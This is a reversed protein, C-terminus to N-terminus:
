IWNSYQRTEKRHSGFQRIRFSYSAERDTKRPVIVNAIQAALPDTMNSTNPMESGANSTAPPM